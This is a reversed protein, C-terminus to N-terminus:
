LFASKEVGLCPEFCDATVHLLRCIGPLANVPHLPLQEGLKQFQTQCEQPGEHVPLSVPIGTWADPDVARFEAAETAGPFAPVERDETLKHDLPPHVSHPFPLLDLMDRQIGPQTERRSLKRVHQHVPQLPQADLLREM